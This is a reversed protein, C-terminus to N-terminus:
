GPRRGPLRRAVRAVPSLVLTRARYALRRALAAALRPTSVLELEPPELPADPERLWARGGGARKSLDRWALGTALLVGMATVGGVDPPVLVPPVEDGELRSRPVVLLRSLDGVVRVGSAAIAPVIEAAVLGARDLAWQPLEVRPEGPAPTRTMKLHRTAGRRMVRTHLGKSLGAENFAVNFARVVEIEPMTLSRNSLEEVAQLTGTRLGVLQEFVRLVLDHDQEDLVIATVRDPGVVDAWRAILADHRHRHWFTPSIRKGDDALEARLWPGLATRAGSQVYQQWQSAVIRALPRLTVVVHIRDPGLDRTVRRIADPQADAFFESSIVVRAAKSGDIERLLSTWKGIPPPTTGLTSPRSTVALVADAPQRWRGAYHVGQAKLRDRGTDFASQVSTTGTKPPGIHVLRTGEPLLLGDSPPTPM